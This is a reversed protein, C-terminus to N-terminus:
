ALSLNDKKMAMHFYEVVVHDIVEKAKEIESFRKLITAENIQEIDNITYLVVGPEKEFESDVNRPVGLDIIYKFDLLNLDKCDSKKFILDRVGAATVIVKCKEIISYREEFPTFKLELEDSIALSTALTRNVVTINSYGNQKLTRVLDKGTKGLGVVGIPTSKKVPFGSIVTKTAYTISAAGDFLATNQRIRKHSLLLKPLIEISFLENPGFDESAFFAQKIQSIVQLDGPIQSHMGNVVEMIYKVANTGELLSVKATFLESKFDSKVRGLLEWIVPTYEQDSFYYFELRNCTCFVVLEEFESSYRACKYFEKIEDPTLSLLARQDVDCSKYDISLAYFQNLM